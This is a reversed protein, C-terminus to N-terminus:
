CNDPSAPQPGMCFCQVGALLCHLSCSSGPGQVVTAMDADRPHCTPGRELAQTDSGRSARVEVLAPVARRMAAVGASRIRQRCRRSGM